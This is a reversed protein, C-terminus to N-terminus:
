GRHRWHRMLDSVPERMLYASPDPCHDINMSGQLQSVADYEQADLWDQLAVLLKGLHAAGNQLITSVLQVANAGAM